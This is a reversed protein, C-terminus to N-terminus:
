ESRIKELIEPSPKLFYYDLDFKNLIEDLCNRSFFINGDQYQHCFGIFWKEQEYNYRLYWKDQDDDSWDPEFDAFDRLEKQLKLHRYHYIAEERTRFVQGTNYLFADIGESNYSLENVGKNDYFYYKDGIQPWSKQKDEEEKAREVEQRLFDSLETKFNDTLEDLTKM